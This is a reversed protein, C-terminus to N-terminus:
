VIPNYFRFRNNPDYKSKLARLRALRWPEYGYMSQLSEGGTAYNVYTTPRRTPQGGNWLDKVQTSWADAAATLGSGPPVATTFFVLHLEDRLPFASSSPDIDAMGKTAYGEHFVRSVTALAPYQAIKQNFLKYITRETTINYAQINASTGAYLASACGPSGVGMGQAEPIQTYPVDGVQEVIAGIANFPALLAEAEAAPGAYAFAWQLIAEAASIAPEIVFQGFNVGMKVPTTGNGHFTNLAAFVTELKDQTWVYNHFHWTDVQKPYIKSQASTVIAFNHGAGKLGWFLDGHCDASGNVLLKTGDALVVKLNIFNDSALGYLGEYRGHGGGLAPGVFGVCANSGTPTVYGANWLAGIVGAVSQGGGIWASKKDPLISVATLLKLDIEIGKFTAITKTMGHGHGRAFFNISNRNCYKVIVSVDDEAAPLVVVQIDPLSAGAWRETSDAWLPSEPGYILSGSSLKSGLEAQVTAPTVVRRTVLEKDFFEPSPVALGAALSQLLALGCAVHRAFVHM